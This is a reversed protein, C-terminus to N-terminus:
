ADLLGSAFYDDADAVGPPVFFYGGGVPVIYDVLPEDILRTQIAEFQQELDRQYCTFLLGVDLQGNVDHGRDYSFGRRVIRQDDTASTRPNGLRIHADLPIQVGHPDQAFNPVDSELKGGLPAGTDKHRGFMREQETLSVRDWFEVLNRIVRVVQYTGGSTWRPEQSVGGVWVLRDMLATDGADPNATGDKFGLHNRPSGDPRPPANTGAVQWRPQMGGRTHRAIDRLARHVVDPQDAQLLLSLDGHTLAADLDDNPFTNMPKLARPKRAALGFRDDFLSAGLGLTVTLGGAPAEAGLVLNDAPTSTPGESTMRGGFTLLRARETLEVMLQRLEDPRSALVDYSVFTAAPAAARLVGAQHAGHFPFRQDDGRTSAAGAADPAPKDTSTSGDSAAQAATLPRALPGAIAGVSVIAGAAGAQLFRRRSLDPAM